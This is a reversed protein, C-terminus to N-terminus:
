AGVGARKLGMTRPDIQAAENKLQRIVDDKPGFHRMRGADIVALVDVNALASSRHAILIVIGNRQKVAQIARGLAAEGEADLNSNPEDLVVLFPNGYLARALGIRQRQGASLVYGGEGIPTDYGKEMNLIMTHVNAAMAAEIIAQSSADPDFRAINEAITGEFLEVDQPLYGTFSGRAEADWQDLRAGDFRIDGAFPTWAGVM